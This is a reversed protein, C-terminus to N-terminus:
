SRDARKPDTDNICEELNTYGDGDPDANRDAPDNSDFGHSAEWADPMGDHDSDAPAEGAALDPWGGVESQSNIMKGTGSRVQEVLRADAADRAPLTAGAKNLVDEYAQQASTTKVPPTDFPKDVFFFVDKGGINTTSAFLSNDKTLEDNGHVVNDAVYFHLNSPAEKDNNSVSIPTKAKSSPGPKIYNGVYNATFTGQTWGTCLEGFDYMVNNRVDFTPKPDRGYSDGLRPNRADNHAWLNHHWTVGGSARSLSGYGHTGKVHGGQRLAEYIMCWQVTINQCDGALSLAEDVSWSVSCHDIIIDKAGRWITLSDTEQKSEDGLRFRLHRVIINSGRLNIWQDRICIGGGPATQGAITLNSADINIRSRLQITGGVRFVITRDGKSVADRFSGPGSDNLNTVEYVDKSRGGTVRAGFGEAGPFAPTFSDDANAITALGLVAGFIWRGAM